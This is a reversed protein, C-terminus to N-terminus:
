PTEDGSHLGSRTCAWLLCALTADCAPPPSGLALYLGSLTSVVQVCVMSAPTRRVMQDAVMAAYEESFMDDWLAGESEIIVEQAGGGVDVMAFAFGAFGQLAYEPVTLMAFNERWPYSSHYHSHHSALKIRVTFNADAQPALVFSGNLITKGKPELPDVVARFGYNRGHAKLPPLEGNM